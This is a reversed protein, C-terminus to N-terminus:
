RRWGQVMLLEDLAQRHIEDDAEFYYEPRHVYGKIESM